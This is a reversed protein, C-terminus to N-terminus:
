RTTSAAHSTRARTCMPAPVGNPDKTTTFYASANQAQGAPWSVDDWGQLNQLGLVSAADGRAANYSLLVTTSAIPLGALLLLFLM